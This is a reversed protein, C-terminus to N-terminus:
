TPGYRPASGEGAADFVSLGAKDFNNYKEPGLQAELIASIAPFIAGESAGEVVLVARALLVEAFQKRERSFAKPKIGSFDIPKGSLIGGSSCNLVVIQSPEFQENVYPSHSTVIGQGMQGLVFRTVRRQTHPPLALEPEEMAFDRDTAREVRRYVYADCLRPSQRFRDV